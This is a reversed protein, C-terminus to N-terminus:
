ELSTNVDKVFVFVSGNDGRSIRLDEDLYTTLLWPQANESKIPFKLPPQGSITRAITYTASQLSQFIGQFATLDVKQGLFTFSEPLDLVNDLQPAGVIGEEFKIQLRKPSCIEFRANASLSATGLAGIFAVSNVMLSESAKISQSIEGVKIFPLSGAALLPFFESLSTYRLVWKGDLLDLCELPKPNPNHAELQGILEMIESRTEANAQLGRETSHISDELAQKLELTRNADESIQLKTPFRASLSSSTAM